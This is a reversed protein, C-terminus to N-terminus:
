SMSICEREVSFGYRNNNDVCLVDLINEKRRCTLYLNSNYVLVNADKDLSLLSIFDGNDFLFIGKENKMVISHDVTLWYFEDEACSFDIEDPLILFKDKYSKIIKGHGMYVEVLEPEIQKEIQKM